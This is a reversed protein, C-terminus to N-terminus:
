DEYLDLKLTMSGINFPLPDSTKVTADASRRTTGTVAIEIDGAYLGADAYPLDDFTADPADAAQGGRTDHVYLGIRSVKWNMGQATGKDTQVDVRSPQLQSTYPLGVIVTSAAAALTITGAGGGGTGVVAPTKVVGDALISVTKGNLHSLGTIVTAPAGEYRVAADAYIMREYDTFDRAFVAPDLREISRASGRLVSLWVEDADTGYVVAVSEITGDTEHVHWGFVNQEVELTMGLLKGDTTVAWLIANPNTGFALQVIGARAVHEALVTMDSTAWPENSSRQSIRRVKRGGRQVFVVVDSAMIASVQSSGFRSQVKLMINSPTIPSGEGSVTWEDGLTGIILDSGQSQLWQIPNLEGASPTFSLSADDLSSRRFNEIDGTVSAWLRMPELSAGAFWLRNEHLAVAAPYGRYGSWAGESWTYTPDTSLCAVTVDCTAVAGPVDETAAAVATITVLGNMRADAAELLFRPAAASSTEASTGALVRLRLTEAGDTEGTTAVNRDKKSRWSRVFEWGGAANQRELYLTTDWAGYTTVSWTGNIILGATEDADITLNQDVGDHMVVDDWSGNTMTDSLAIVHAGTGAVRATIVVTTAGAVATVDPHPSTASGYLTGAGASGNIAAALNACSDATNAGIDVTGAVAAAVGIWTYVRQGITVTAAAVAISSLTLTGVAAVAPSTTQLEVFADERRHTLQWVSGVHSPRFIGRNSTLTRGTGVTANSVALSTQYPATLSITNAVATAATPKLFGNFDWRFEEVQSLFAVHTDSVIANLNYTRYDSWAGSGPTARRQLILRSATEGDLAAVLPDVPSNVVIQFAGPPLTFTAPRSTAPAPTFTFTDTLASDQIQIHGTWTPGMYRVRPNKGANVAGSLAIPLTPLSATWTTDYMVKWVGSGTSTEREIILRKTVDAPPAGSFTVNLTLGPAAAGVYNHIPDQEYPTLDFSDEQVYSDPLAQDGPNEDGLAPWTWPVLELVWNDDAYRTLRRPAYSPHALYVVDNVQCMQVMPMHAATYPLTVPALLTVLEGDKWVRLGATSLDLIFTTSASFQFSRLTTRDTNTAAAGMFELGPRRFAPGHPHIIFNRLKRCGSSVKEVGFRAGMLPSIEGANFSPIHLHATSM